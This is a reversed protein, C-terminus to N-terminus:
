FTQKKIKLLQKLQPKHLKLRTDPYLIRIRTQLIKFVLVSRCLNLYNLDSRYYQKRTFLKAYLISCFIYIDDQRSKNARFKSSKALTKSLNKITCGMRDSKIVTYRVKIGSKEVTNSDKM